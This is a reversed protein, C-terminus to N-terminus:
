GVIGLLLKVIQGRAYGPLAAVDEFHFGVRGVGAATPM